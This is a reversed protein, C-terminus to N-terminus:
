PALRGDGPTVAIAAVARLSLLKILLCIGAIKRDNPLGRPSQRDIIRM